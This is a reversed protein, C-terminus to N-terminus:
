PLDLISYASDVGHCRVISAANVKMGGRHVASLTAEVRCVKDVKLPLLGGIKEQEVGCHNKGHCQDNESIAHFRSHGLIRWIQAHGLCILPYLM